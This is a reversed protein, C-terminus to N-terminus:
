AAKKQVQQGESDRICKKLHYLIRSPLEMPVIEDRTKETWVFEQEAFAIKPGRLGDQYQFYDFYLRAGRESLTQLRMVVQIQDFPMAERLHKIFANTCFAEGKFPLRFAEPAILQLFSDRTRGQWVSYNSFYVNGVLNSDELATTFVQEALVPGTAVGQPAEYIIEGSNEFTPVKIDVINRRPISAFFDQFIQPFPAVEVLGHGLVRVWTTLMESRAIIEENGKSDVRFFEYYANVASQSAGHPEGSTIRCEIIDGVEASRFYQTKSSNTVWGFEGSTFHHAAQGLLPIIGIERARGQWEFFKSFYIGRGMNGTDKFTVPWRVHFGKESSLDANILYADQYQIGTGDGRPVLQASHDKKEFALALAFTEGSPHEVSTALVNLLKGDCESEFLVSRENNEFGIFQVDKANYAKAAAERASWIWTGIRNSDLNRSKLNLFTEAFKPGLLSKWEDDGRPKILELDCGVIEQNLACICFDGVHSFSVQWNGTVGSLEPKGDVHWSLKVSSLDVHAGQRSRLAREVLRLEHEHREDSKMQSLGPIEVYCIFPLKLKLQQALPSLLGQLDWGPNSGLAAIEEASLHEPAAKLKAGQCEILRELVKGNEDVCVVTSTAKKGDFGQIHTRVLRSGAEMQHNLIEWRKCFVPLFVDQTLITQMSQLFSDRLYADGLLLTKQPDAFSDKRNKELDAQEAVFIAEKSSLAEFKQIRQYAPGHFLISGYMEKRVNFSLARSARPIKDVQDPIHSGFIFNAAFCNKTFQSAESRVGVRVVSQSGRHTKELVEAFVEISLGDTPHVVIPSTLELNEIVLQEICDLGLTYAAVQAMAELGFVTPMLYSGNYCHDKLYLDTDLSLRARSITEVGATNAVINELFRLSASPPISNALKSDKWLRATIMVQQSGPDKECLDLFRKVGQEVPILKLGSGSFKKGSGLKAAMGVEDWMGYALTVTHVHPHQERYQLLLHNLSENSFSYWANGPVGVVGLISTLAAFMKLNENPVAKILNLAGMLKPSIEVFAEEESVQSSRRPTNKGAGHLVATVKGLDKEVKSILTQIDEEKTVDSQYYQFKISAEKLRQLNKLIEQDADSFQPGKPLPSSGVIALKVGNKQAFAFACEATIGRGGGTVLMVDQPTWQIGRDRYDAPQSLVPAPVLRTGQEDFGVMRFQDASNLESLTEVAAKNPDLKLSFDLCRVRMNPNELHLTQLASNMSSYEFSQKFSGHNFQGDAFQVCAVATSRQPLLSTKSLTLLFQLRSISSRIRAEGELKKQPSSPMLYIAHTLDALSDKDNRDFEEFACARVSVGVVRFAEVLANLFVANDNDHLVLVKSGSWKRPVYQTSGNATNKRDEPQMRITFNRVWPAPEQNKTEIVKPSTEHVPRSAAKSPTTEKSFFNAIDKLTGNAFQIPDLEGVHPYMKRLKVIVEGAKISDLNLDDLLRMEPKLISRDFGTVQSVIELLSDEVSAGRAVIPTQPSSAALDSSSDMVQTPSSPHHIVPAVEVPNGASPLAGALNRPKLKMIIEVIEGLTANAMQIPDVSTELSCRKSLTAIAEGAKISDMNLDDLLRMEMKFVDEAFGTSQCLVEVLTRAVQDKTMELGAGNVTSLPIVKAAPKEVPRHAEINKVVPAHYSEAGAARAISTASAIQVPVSASRLLEQPFEKECPNVMFQKQAFPIYPRVLRNEFLKEIRIMGGSAFYAAIVKLFDSQKQPNGEVAYCKPGDQSLIQKSMGTLVSGPGVEILMDCEQSVKEIVGVFNVPSTIQNSLYQHLDTMELYTKLDVGSIVPCKFPTVSYPKLDSLLREAATQMLPSHFANSVKLRVHAIEKEGALRIVHDIAAVTGSVVTQSPSNINAVVVEPGVESVIEKARELNCALSVMAGTESGSGSMLSGRLSAAELMYKEDYAGAWHLATLEGLSHGAAMHCVVGLEELQKAWLLSALCIAPQAIQTQKLKQNWEELQEPGTARNLSRYITESLSESSQNSLTDALKVYENAWPFREKLVKAMNLKQSGQGPFLFGVKPPSAKNSLWVRQLSDHSSSGEAPPSSLMKELTVLKEHLDKADEALIVARYPMTQSARRSLDAAVDTLEGHSMFLTEKQINRIQEAMSGMTQATFLFLEADSHSVLLSREDLSPRLSHQPQGYSEISVHCNIGGFGFASIGAKLTDNAPRVEGDTLPYLQHATKEFVPNWNECGSTPPLVRRNVAIAAKIFAGIGAAAKTHGVISKLSTVGCIRSAEDGGMEKMALSLGELERRDGVATGTGHCEVFDNESAKYGAMEYARVIAKAQGSAKPATIGGNGDSSIGWGNLVAYIKDQDREADALRKLIVFGCGEGPIFGKGDKDFVRMEKEALAGVKAFGILELTDLSIDVGGAIAVNLQNSALATASNAIALLSSACAGDVTYGGGDLNFFNCIRGAITNALAGALTDETFPAFLSKFMVETDGIFNAIESDSLGRNQATQQLVKQIYPWRVRLGSARSMEGTLSNGVLVGTKELPITDRGYGADRIAKAAVDLALWHVLDTSEFSSKPFRNTMWDFDFGDIYAAQDGYTKDPMSRDPHYYEDLPLRQDLMRRFQRKKAMVNEWLELIDKAGPYWCAMGIVAIDHKRQQPKKVIAEL